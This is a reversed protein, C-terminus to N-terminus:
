IRGLRMALQDFFRNRVNEITLAERYGLMATDQGKFREPEVQLAFSNVQRQWFWEASCLQINRPDIKPIEKLAHFFARGTANNEICFAVYAIRYEVRAVSNGVPLPDLNHPDRQGPHVFHGWCCQLTFCYPLSNFDEITRRIPADIVTHGLDVLSRKRQAKFDPNEVFARPEIFTEM